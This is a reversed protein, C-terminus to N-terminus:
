VLMNILLINIDSAMTPIPTDILGLAMKLYGFIDKRGGLPFTPPPLLPGFSGRPQLM